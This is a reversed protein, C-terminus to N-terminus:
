NSARRQLETLNIEVTIAGIAKGNKAITMNLQARWTGTGDHFEAEDIFVADAGVPYTKQFKGEDGQWYDGTIASQGRRGSATAIGCCDRNQDLDHHQVAQSLPRAVIIM